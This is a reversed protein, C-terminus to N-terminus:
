LTWQMRSRCRSGQDACVWTLSTQGQFNQQAHECHFAASIISHRGEHHSRFATAPALAAPNHHPWAGSPSATFDQSINCPSHYALIPQLCCHLRSCTLTLGLVGTILSDWTSCLQRRWSLTWSWLMWVCALSTHPWTCRWLAEVWAWWCPESGGGLKCPLDCALTAASQLQLQAVDFPM